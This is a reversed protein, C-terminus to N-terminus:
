VNKERARDFTTTSPRERVGQAGNRFAAWYESGIYNAAAYLDLKAMPTWDVQVNFKHKPTKDLPYGDLSSGNFAKEGSGERRSETLTYAGSVKLTRSLGYKSKGHVRPFHSVEEEQIRAPSTVTSM